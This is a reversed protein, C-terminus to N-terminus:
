RQDSEAPEASETDEGTASPMAPLRALVSVVRERAEDMRERLRAGEARAAALQARLVANEESLSKAAAALRAIRADLADLEEDM